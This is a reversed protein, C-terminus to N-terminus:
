LMNNLISLANSVSNVGEYTMTLKDNKQRFDINKSQPLQLFNLIKQFQGSQYYSSQQNSVFHLIMKKRKLIVKEFGLKEAQIRLRIVNFLEQAQDPLSGFRDILRDMFQQIEDESKLNDLEKYLQLREAINDVYTEPILIELDTDITCDDVWKHNDLKVEEKFLDKFENQKLEQLAENLIKQYTEYGMENIFGSQDAGLLDGAGRIDLDKMAIYFGSGLDSFELLANLRKRAEATLLSFPPTLLYCFAKKNSRGVRGRMQHLDSLGFNHADNIIITNANPIDLGSEVISTSVLVDFDGEIFELMIEELKSGDMQGHAFKVKVDPCLRQIMGTIEQINQVRNHIFFVQGNRSVEYMVADRITEENFGKLETVVPYRNSPPTRIVSLDRAGLLSFQLTRPIPTATLTLTDVNSKITKLKDKTSVGFKQEEDIILLGLDKFRIDKSVLKHTGIIIDVKGNALKELTEKQAKASKFRNIYDVTVAFDKLRSSFTKFHQLALITTPVLVAVQKGDCVAKFAARIAVETKGFGVDGCILRDMPYPKEMDTKVDQTAKFQDPTDEYIFSAELEHQLYTDPSYQIGEESKRKAYLKILDFALEKVRKKTKAKLTQWTNSGIKNLVPEKGEKGSYRAIRHLSHISVFVSDGDKYILKVAEQPKGNVDIKELGAFQGVGHDIHTVFDGPKLTTLEKISISQNKSYTAKIQFRKYRDFIQHDTYCAIKLDQDVFGSKISFYHPKFLEKDHISQNIDSKSLLDQFINNLREIQKPQDSFVFTLIKETKNKELNELLLEFKKHFPPQAQTHFEIVDMSQHVPGFYCRRFTKLKDSFEQGNLFLEDPSRRKVEGSLQKYASEAKEFYRDLVSVTKTIDHIWLVTDAPIFELLSQRIEQVQKREINPLIDIRDFKTVSLQTDPNFTRISAVKNGEFEIRYPLDNAFSFVDIIGGRAAFQGPEYVFDDRDFDYEILVDFIFDIDVSEGVKLHLIKDQILEKTVVKEALAHSYSVIAKVKNQRIANLAETRMLINSNDTEDTDYPRRYSEPYFFVNEKGLISELDNLLYAAEEKEDSIFVQLCDSEDTFAASIFSLSSGSCGKIHVPSEPRMSKQVLHQFQPLTKYQALIFQTVDSMFIFPM